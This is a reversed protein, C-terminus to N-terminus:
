KMITIYEHELQSEIRDDCTAGTSSPARALKLGNTREKGVEYNMPFSKKMDLDKDKKNKGISQAM